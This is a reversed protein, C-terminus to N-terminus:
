EALSIMPSLEPPQDTDLIFPHQADLSPDYGLMKCLAFYPSEESGAEKQMTEIELLVSEPIPRRMRPKIKNSRRGSDGSLSVNDLLCSEYSELKIHLLNCIVKLGLDPDLTFEEYRILPIGKSAEVLRIARHCFEKFSSFHFHQDWSQRKISIWSDLPHRATLLENIEHSDKLTRVIFHESEPEAGTFFDIHSHNRLVLIKNEKAVKQALAHISGRWAEVCLVPDRGNHPLCLQQIIDTPIYSAEAEALRLYALPHVESLLIVNQLKAISRSIITGGSCAWHHLIRISVAKM